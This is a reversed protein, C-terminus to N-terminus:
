RNSFKRGSVNIKGENERKRHEGRTLRDLVGAKVQTALIMEIESWIPESDREQDNRDYLEALNLLAEGHNLSGRGSTQIAREIETKYLDEKSAIRM